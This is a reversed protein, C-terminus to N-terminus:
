PKDALLTSFPSVLSLDDHDRGHIHHYDSGNRYLYTDPIASSWETLGLNALLSVPVIALSFPGYTSPLLVDYVTQSDLAPM